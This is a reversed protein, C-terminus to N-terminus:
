DIQLYANEKGAAEAFFTDLKTLDSVDVDISLEEQLERVLAEQVSEGTELKGGPSVFFSKGKSRAILFKRDKLLVGAAKHIDITQQM